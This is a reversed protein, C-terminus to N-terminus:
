IDNKIKKIIDNRKGFNGGTQTRSIVENIWVSNYKQYLESIFDYDGCRQPKWEVMQSSHFIIGLGSIDNRIPKQGFHFDSPVIRIKIDVRYLYINNEDKIFEPNILLEDDDDLFLCWGNLYPKVINFYYNYIFSDREIKIKKCINEVVEKDILYYTYNLSSCYKKVYKLDDITDITIHLKAKIGSKIISKICNSFYSPRGSTRIIINLDYKSDIETFSNYTKIDNNGVVNRFKIIDSNVTKGKDAVINVNKLVGRKESEDFLIKDGYWIKLQNPIYIYKKVYMFCGFGNGYDTPFEDISDIRLGNTDGKLSMGIIDYDSNSILKMVTDFDNIVIDDNALILDYNSLSYGWNWSPNVYINEGKTYIKVKKFNELDVAVSPDNDILIIEKVYKSNEYIPLMKLIKDSKWMTPIVISFYKSVDSNLETTEENIISIKNLNKDNSAIRQRIRNMGVSLTPIAKSNEKNIFILQKRRNEMRKKIVKKIDIRQRKM